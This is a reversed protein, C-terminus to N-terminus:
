HLINTHPHSHIHSHAHVPIKKFAYFFHPQIYLIHSHKGPHSHINTRIHVCLTKKKLTSVKTYYSAKVMTYDRGVFSFNCKASAGFQPTVRFFRSAIKVSLHVKFFFSLFFFFLRHMCIPFQM